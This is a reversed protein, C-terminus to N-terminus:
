GPVEVDVVDARGAVIGLRWLGVSRVQGVSGDYLGDTRLGSVLLAGVCGVVFEGGGTVVRAREHGLEALDNRRTDLRENPGTISVPDAVPKTIEVNGVGYGVGPLGSESGLCQRRVSDIALRATSELSLVIQREQTHKARTMLNWVVLRLERELHEDLRHLLTSDLRGLYTFTIKSILLMYWVCKASALSNM